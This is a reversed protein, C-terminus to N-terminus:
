DKLYVDVNCDYWIVQGGGERSCQCPGFGSIRDSGYIKIASNKAKSCAESRTDGIANTNDVGAIAITPWSSLILVGALIAGPKRCSPNM